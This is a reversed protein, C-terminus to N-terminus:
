IIKARLLVLRVKDIFHFLLYPIPNLVLDYSGVYEVLRGGYGSKFRHFGYWPDRTNADPGLCGWLDFSKAKLKKGLKIAEWAVLNSSMVNRYIDSSGGYPYYLMDGFKFIMWATLPIPTKSDPPTYYAVLIRAIGAPQLTEWLLKHYKPTHGFYTQRKSTQFYLKLFTKFAEDDTREDIKVNNKMAIKINYRTKPHLAAVLDEDSKTLDIIFSYKFFLPRLSPRLGLNELGSPWAESIKLKLNEIETNPEVQIYICNYEKGIRKLEDITEKDPMNCKPLYGITWPTHPVKHITLQFGSPNKLPGTLFNVVPLGTKKRFEGWEWSQVPHSVKTNWKKQQSSTLGRIVM